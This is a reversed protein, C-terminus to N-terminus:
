SWLLASRPLRLLRLVLMLLFSFGLRLMMTSVGRYRSAVDSRHLRGGFFNGDMPQFHGFSQFGTWKGVSVTSSKRSSISSASILGLGFLAARLLRWRGLPSRLLDDDKSVDL